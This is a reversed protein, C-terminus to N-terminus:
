DPGEALMVCVEGYSAVAVGATVVVMNIATGIHWTETGLLMGVIFVSAPM